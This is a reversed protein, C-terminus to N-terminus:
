FAGLMWKLTSCITELTSSVFKLNSFAIKFTSFDIELTSFDIKFTSFSSIVRIGDTGNTECTIHPISETQCAIDVECDIM